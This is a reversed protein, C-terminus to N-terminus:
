GVTSFRAVLAARDPWAAALAAATSADILVFAEFRFPPAVTCGVLTPEPGLAEAAQWAGPPVVAVRADADLRITRWGADDALHLELPGGGYHHWLEEAGLVRHLRSRGGPPLAFLIHTCAASRHVERYFGGEPHPALDLRAVLAATAPDM